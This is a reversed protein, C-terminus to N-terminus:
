RLVTCKHVIGQLGDEKVIDLFGHPSNIPVDLNSVIIKANLNTNEISKTLLDIKEECGHLVKKIDEYLIDHELSAFLTRTSLAILVIEPNWEYLWSKKDLLEQNYQDFGGFKIESKFGFKELHKILPKELNNLTYSGLVAIKIKKNESKEAILKKQM